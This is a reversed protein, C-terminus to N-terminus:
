RYMLIYMLAYMLLDTLWYTCWYMLVYYLVTTGRCRWYLGALLRLVPVIYLPEVPVTGCRDRICM